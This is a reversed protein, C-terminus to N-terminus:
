ELQFYGGKDKKCVAGSVSTLKALGCFFASYIWAKNWKRKVAGFTFWTMWAWFLFLASMMNPYGYIGKETVLYTSITMAAAVVGAQPSVARKGVILVTIALLLLAVVSLLRLNLEMPIGTKNVISVLAPYLPYYGSLVEGQAVSVPLIASTTSETAMAAYYGERTSLEKDGLQIPTYIAVFAVFLIIVSNYLSINKEVYKSKLNM